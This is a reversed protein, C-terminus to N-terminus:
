RVQSSVQPNDVSHIFRRVQANFEEPTEINSLHGAGPIVVLEAGPISDHLDRAVCLPARQDLEGYLLLTPVRIQPLVGRLDAEAMSHAIARYGGPHRSGASDMWIDLLEHVSEKPMAPGLLGPLGQLLTERPSDAAALVSELRAAVEDPPLSGAWGAYASALTLSAPVSPHRQYFELAVSSGWSLGLVHPREIGIAELWGALAEAFHPMRWSDPVDSSRGCGPADWALVTFEGSLGDLQRRWSRGDDMGGHLLVLPPGQGAQTYAIRLGGLQVTKTAFGRIKPPFVGSAVLVPAQVAGGVTGRGPRLHPLRLLLKGGGRVLLRRRRRQAQPHLAGLSASDLCAGCRLPGRSRSDM